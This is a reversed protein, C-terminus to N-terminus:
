KEYNEGRYGRVSTLGCGLAMGPPLGVSSQYDVTLQLSALNSCPVAPCCSPASDSLWWAKWGYFVKIVVEYLEEPAGPVSNDAIYLVSDYYM